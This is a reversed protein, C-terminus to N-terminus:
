GGGYKNGSLYRNGELYKNGSSYKSSGSYKSAASAEAGEGNPGTKWAEEVAQLLKKQQETFDGSPPLFPAEAKKVRNSAAEAQHIAALVKPLMQPKPKGNNGYLLEQVLKSDFPGPIRGVGYKTAFDKGLHESAVFQNGSQPLFPLLLSRKTKEPDFQGFAKSAPSKSEGVELGALRAPAALHILQNLAAWGQKEAKEGTFPEIGTVATLAAGLVPNASSLLAAPNGTAGAQTLNSQGPSIRSGGPLVNKEGKANTEVPYAYAIPNELPGGVLKELQNANAQGLTYALTATVPHTRPFTWLTWRLSYRLFPYFIALPALSREYRTFASWNGQINDVYDTIKRLEVKGKPDKTLWDWLETRSKGRFDHSLRAQKDFLGTLSAHWSRFRKDAEAAALLTRYENQRKVDFVGLAKLKVLSLASKATKGRTLGRAGKEWLAPTYTEQMDLPTRNAASNLPSAGATAQMALAEEPNTKKYRQIDREVSAMKAPNLLSPKAMLLPIGEAPIQAIAWAPNTGLLLRSSVRSFKNATDTIVNHEPSIQARAERIAERPMLVWPESGKVKGAEADELFGVLRSDETFPDKVANKWERLPFRAWTQPDFQGGNPNEKSRPATIATWDKSGQGVVKQKGDIKFPTKFHQVFDRGFQKGAARLRPMHVTGRLLGELSRDLNDARALNGERMHEVRGANTPFRNEIGVGRGATNAEAHHTWIASAMGAQKRSAEVRNKYDQLMRSDYAKRASGDIAQAPRTYPDLARYLAQNEKQLGRAAAYFAKGESRARSAEAGKLVKAQNLRERGRRKFDRLRAEKTALEKWAADRTTATTLRRAASPVMQEPRTHGFVDGQQMLRAREGKGVMAAPASRSADAVAKLAKKFSKDKFLGPHADVYDLAKVLQADKPGRERVLHAHKADRIGYEALTQLAVHSGKPAKAIADTIQKEHHAAAVRHPNDARQKILATKKRAEHRATFAFINEPTGEPAHRVSRNAMEGKGAAKRRLSSAGERVATRAREYPKLRTIAPLPTAFALSGEKRAALEAKKPDGSFTNSAIEALGKAQESATKKLPEPTGKIVSEGGAELLAAPATIAGPLSRLTTKATEGPHHLIADATGVAAARARKTVDGPLVGEPLVVAGAYGTRVPHRAASKAAARRGESTTAARKARAPASKVREPTEKIRKATRVPATKVREVTKSGKSAAAKLAKEAATEGATAESSALKAGLTAVTKSGAKGALNALGGIGATAGTSIALEAIPDAHIGEHKSIYDLKQKEYARPYSKKLIEPPPALGEKARTATVHPNNKPKYAAPLQILSGAPKARKATRQKKPAAAPDYPKVPTATKHKVTLDGSTGGSRRATKPRTEAKQAGKGPIYTKHGTRAPM